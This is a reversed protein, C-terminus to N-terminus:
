HLKREYTDFKYSYKNSSDALFKRSDTLHWDAPDIDPFFADGDTWATDLETAYIRDASGLAQEYVSQGGIVCLDRDTMEYAEDLSNVTECSEFELEHRSLVLNRRNPLAFGISELTRRGMLVARGDTLERFHRMDAAQEGQWPLQNDRGITRIRDYAVVIDIM